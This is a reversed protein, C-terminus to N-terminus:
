ATVGTALISIKAILASAAISLVIGAYFFRNENSRYM